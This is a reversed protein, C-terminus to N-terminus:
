EDGAGMRRRQGTVEFPHFLAPVAGSEESAITYDLLNRGAAADGAALVDRRRRVIDRVLDRVLKLDYDVPLLWRPALGANVAWKRIQFVPFLILDKMSRRRACDYKHVQKFFPLIALLSVTGGTLNQIAVTVPSQVTEFSEFDYGFGALSWVLSTQLHLFTSSIM